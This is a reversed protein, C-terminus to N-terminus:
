RDRFTFANGIRSVSVLHAPTYVLDTIRLDELLWVNQSTGPLLSIGQGNADTVTVTHSSLNTFGFFRANVEDCGVVTMGFILTMALIGWFKKNNAM